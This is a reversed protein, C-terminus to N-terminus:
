FTLVSMSVFSLSRVFCLKPMSRPHIDISYHHGMISNRKIQYNLSLFILALFPVIQVLNIGNRSTSSKILRKVKIPKTSKLTSSRTALRYHHTASSTSASQRRTEHKKHHMSRRRCCCHYVCCTCLSYYLCFDFVLIQFRRVPL